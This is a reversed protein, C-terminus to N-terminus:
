TKSPGDNGVRLPHSCVVLWCRDVRSQKTFHTLNKREPLQGKAKFLFFLFLLTPGFSSIFLLWHSTTLPWCHDFFLMSSGLTFWPHDVMSTVHCDNLLWGIRESPLCAADLPSSDSGTWGHRCPDWKATSSLTMGIPVSSFNRLLRMASEMSAPTIEGLRGILWSPSQWTMQALLLCTNLTCPQSHVIESQSPVKTQPVPGPMQSAFVASSWEVRRAPCYPSRRAIQCVRYYVNVYSHFIVM